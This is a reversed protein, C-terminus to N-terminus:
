YCYRAGRPEGEAITYSFLRPGRKLPLYQLWDAFTGSGMGTRRFGAPPEIQSANCRSNAENTQGPNSSNGTALCPLYTCVDHSIINHM